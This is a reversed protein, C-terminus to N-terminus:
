SEKLKYSFVINEDKEFVKTVNVLSTMPISFMENYDDILKPLFENLQEITKLGMTRIIQPWRNQLTKFKREM